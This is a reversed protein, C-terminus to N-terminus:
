SSTKEIGYRIAAVLTERSVKGLSGFKICYGSVSAAGIDNGFANALAKKDSLGMIYVSIGATNASLGIQYFERTRGDPYRLNQHGYGVNPNTVVRGKKDKGDLFSLPCNPILGIITQHLELLDTRKPEPQSALYDAIQQQVTM